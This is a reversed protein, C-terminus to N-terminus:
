NGSKSPFMEFALVGKLFKKQIKRSHCLLSSSKLYNKKGDNPFRASIGSTGSMSVFTEALDLPSGSFM